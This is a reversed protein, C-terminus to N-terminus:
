RNKLNTKPKREEKFIENLLEREKKMWNGAIASGFGKERKIVTNKITLLETPFGEIAYEQIAKTSDYLFIIGKYNNKEWHKLFQSYSSVTGDCILVINLGRNAYENYITKLHLFKQECPLCGVFYFEVITPRSQLTDFLHVPRGDVGAYVNDMLEGKGTKSVFYQGHMYWLMAPIFYFHSLVM